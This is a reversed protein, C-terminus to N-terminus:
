RAPRELWHATRHGVSHDLTSSRRTPRFPLERPAASQISGDDVLLLSVRVSREERFVLDIRRCVEMASDWDEYVPMTIIIRMMTELAHAPRASQANCRGGDEDSSVGSPMRSAPCPPGSEKLGKEDPM